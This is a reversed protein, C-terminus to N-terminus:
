GLDSSRVPQSPPATSARQILQCHMRTVGPPPNQEDECIVARTMWEAMEYHPLRMTTLQPDLNTSILELDDFGVVSLDQPIRLGRRAVQRYVGAAMADNYCFVATPRPDLDLLRTATEDAGAPDNDGRLLLREDWPLGHSVLARRYGAIRLGVAAADSDHALHAIRDHGLEILHTTAEYAAREEDPVVGPVDDRDAFSNLVFVDSLGEEVIVEQHYMAAYIIADVQRSCLEDVARRRESTDGGTDAFIVSWGQSRATTLIGDVMSVAYPTSLVDNAVVGLTRTRQSRMSAALANRVYGLDRAAGRVRKATTASVRGNAKGSLVLSATATSVAAAQAVDALTTM